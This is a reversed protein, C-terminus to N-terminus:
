IRLTVRAGPRDELARVAFYFTDGIRPRDGFPLFDRGPDIVSGGALLADPVLGLASAEVGARAALLPAVALDSDLRARRLAPPRFNEDEGFGGADIRVRLWRARVGSVESEIWGAPVRFSVTGDLTLARTEDAFEPGSGEMAPEEPSSLGLTTWEEGGDETRRLFEWALALGAVPAAPHEPDTEVRLAVRAGPARFVDPASLYFAARPLHEGFPWAGGSLPYPAVGDEAVATDHWWGAVVDRERLAVPLRASIWASSRGDLTTEPVGAFDAFAVHWGDVGATVAPAPLPHWGSADLFEWAAYEPWPLAPDAPGLVLTVTNPGARGFAERDGFCVRHEAEDEGEFVRFPLEVAGTARATADTRRDREPDRVWAAVLRSRTVVLERETEFVVPDKEGELPLAAVPTRAPVLTDVPSGAALAFTLPVRAPQPPLLETGILDLFALFNRDPVQNLRDAVVEAMRAFVSVLASGPDGGGPPPTWGATRELHGEVDAVFDRFGRPEIPLKM